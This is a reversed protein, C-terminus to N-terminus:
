YSKPALSLLFDMLIFWYLHLINVSFICLIIKTYWLLRIINNNQCDVEEYFNGSLDDYKTNNKLSRSCYCITKIIIDEYVDFLLSILIFDHDCPIIFREIASDRNHSRPCLYASITLHELIEPIKHKNPDFMVFIRVSRRRHAKRVLLTRCRRSHSSKLILFNCGTHIIHQGLLLFLLHDFYFSKNM